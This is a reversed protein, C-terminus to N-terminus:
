HEGKTGALTGRFHSKIKAPTLLAELREAYIGLENALEEFTWNMNNSVALLEKTKDKYSINQWFGLNLAEPNILMRMLEKISKVLTVITLFDPVAWGLFEYSHYPRMLKGSIKITM